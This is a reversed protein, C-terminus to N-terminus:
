LSIRWFRAITDEELIDQIDASVSLDYNTCLTKMACSLSPMSDHYVDESRLLDVTINYSTDGPILLSRLLNSFKSSSVDVNIKDEHSIHHDTELEGYKEEIPDSLSIKIDTNQLDDVNKKDVDNNITPRSNVSRPDVVGDTGSNEHFCAYASQTEPLIAIAEESKIDDKKSSVLKKM